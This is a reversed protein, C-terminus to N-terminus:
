QLIGAKFTLVTGNGQAIYHSIQYHGSGDTFATDGTLVDNLFLSVPAAILPTGHLTVTGNILLTDGTKVTPPLPDMIVMFDTNLVTTGQSASYYWQAACAVGIMCILALTGLIIAAKREM